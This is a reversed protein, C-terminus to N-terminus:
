GKKLATVPRSQLLYINEGEIAWEIDQPKGYHQEVKKALETLRRIENETLIEADVKEQPVEMEITKGTTEDRAFMIRKSAVAASVTKGTNKDLVYHDPTITGSVIGEGLGWVAEIIIQGEECTVPNVTFMVGAKDADIMKQVIVAMSVKNHDFGQKERYFIARSTFLSSWCKQVSGTLDKGSVNLYTDQQGAFSADSLDEATASSRVAVRVPTTMDESLKKYNDLIANHIVTPVRCKVIIDRIKNSKLELQRQDDVPMKRLLRTLERATTRNESLFHQYAQSTVVFGPPVPLDSRAMEGLNAGKGGALAIDGKTLDKFWAVYALAMTL